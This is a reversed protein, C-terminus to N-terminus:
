QDVGYPSTNGEDCGTFHGSKAGCSTCRETETIQKMGELLLSKSIYGQTNM